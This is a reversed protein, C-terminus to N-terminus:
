RTNRDEKKGQAVKLLRHLDDPTNAQPPGTKDHPWPLAHAISNRLAQQLSGDGQTIQQELREIWRTHAVMPFPQWRDAAQYAAVELQDSETFAEILPQLWDAQPEVLDCSAITLLGEGQQELSDQLAAMVGGLPGIDSPRDEIVRFNGLLDAQHLKGVLTVEALKSGLQRATQQAWPVGQVPHSAKDCGFRRSEGGILLYLPPENLPFDVAPFPQALLKCQPNAEGQIPHGTWSRM